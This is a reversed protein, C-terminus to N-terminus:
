GPHTVLHKDTYMAARKIPRAWANVGPHRCSHRAAPVAARLQQQVQAAPVQFQCVCVTVGRGRAARELKSELSSYATRHPARVVAALGGGWLPLRACCLLQWGNGRTYCDGPPLQVPAVRRCSETLAVSGLSCTCGAGESVKSVPTQAEMTGLAQSGVLGRRWPSAGAWSGWPGRSCRALVIAEGTVMEECGPRVCWWLVVQSPRQHGEGGAQERQGGKLQRLGMQSASHGQQWLQSDVRM